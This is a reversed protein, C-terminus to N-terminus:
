AKKWSKGPGPIRFLLIGPSELTQVFGTVGMGRSVHGLNEFMTCWLGEARVYMCVYMLTIQIACIFESSDSHAQLLQAEQTSSTLSGYLQLFLGLNLLIRINWGTLQNADGTLQETLWATAPPCLRGDRIVDVSTTQKVYFLAYRVDTFRCTVNLFLFCNIYWFSSAIFNM